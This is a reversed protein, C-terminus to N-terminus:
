NKADFSLVLAVPRHDSAQRVGDGDYIRGTGNLVASKLGPSVFLHDVRSYTEERRYWHSWVEGHSDAAPILVSIETKGRKQLFATAKSSRSDNCDGLIVFRASAPSPFRKLV